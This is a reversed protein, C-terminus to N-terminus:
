TRFASALAKVQPAAIMRRLWPGSWLSSGPACDSKFAQAAHELEARVAGATQWRDAPSKALCRAILPAICKPVADLRAPHDRMVRAALVAQNAGSFARKGTALEFLILGLAFIDTRGDCVKGEFQEPAMYSPTGLIAFSVTQTEAELQNPEPAFKALGFDLVKVGYRTLMINGPKLDRHIIGLGHAASLVDAIQIGHRLVENIPLAGRRLRASLTEGEVLEMVLYNAGVDYLTCAHPHNLMSLSRAERDLRRGFWINSVKIAVARGLRTDTAKYVTGMGGEGLIAELRYPGLRTGAEPPPSPAPVGAGIRRTRELPDPSVPAAEIQQAAMAARLDGATLVTCLNTFTLHFNPM